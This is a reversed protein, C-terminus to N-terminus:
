PESIPTISLVTVDDPLRNNFDHSRRGSVSILFILVLNPRTCSNKSRESNSSDTRSKNLSTESISRIKARKAVIFAVGRSTTLKPAESEFIGWNLCANFFSTKLKFENTEEANFVDLITSLILITKFSSAGM